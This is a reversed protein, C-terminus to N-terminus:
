RLRVRVVKSTAPAYPYVKSPTTVARLPATRGADRPVTARARWDQGAGLTSRVLAVWRGGRRVQVAVTSGVPSGAAGDLRGAVTVARAGAAGRSRATLTTTARVLLTGELAVGWEEPTLPLGNSDLVGARVVQSGGAVAVSVTAATGPGPVGTPRAWDNGTAARPARTVGFQLYAAPLATGRGDSLAASFGVVRDADRADATLALRGNANWGGETRWSSTDVPTAGPVPAAGAAGPVVVCLLAAGVLAGRRRPGCARPM